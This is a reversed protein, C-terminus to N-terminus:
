IFISGIQYVAFAMFYALGTTYVITFIAWKAEGSENKIAAIVAVCPFYILIFVMFSLASLPTFVKEGIKDGSTFRQERLKNKLTMSTEDAGEEAQYLVGMTSIVVEKAAIGTLLSVSMKWDYGLPAMVPEIGKGLRGIYSLEQHEGAKVIALSDLAAM